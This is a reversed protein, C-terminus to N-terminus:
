WRGGAHDKIVSREIAALGVADGQPAVLPQQGDSAVRLRDNPNRAASFDDGMFLIAKHWIGDMKRNVRPARLPRWRFNEEVTETTCVCVRNKGSAVIDRNARM